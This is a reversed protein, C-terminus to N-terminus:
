SKYEWKDSKFNTNYLIRSIVGTYRPNKKEWKEVKKSAKIFSKAKKIHVKHSYEDYLEVVILGTIKRM